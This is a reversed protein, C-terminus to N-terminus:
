SILPQQSVVSAPIAGKVEVEYEKVTSMFKLLYLTSFILICM